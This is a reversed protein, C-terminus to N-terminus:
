LSLTLFSTPHFLSALRVSGRTGERLQGDGSQFQLPPPSSEGKVGLEQHEGVSLFSSAPQGRVLLQLSLPPVLCGSHRSLDM